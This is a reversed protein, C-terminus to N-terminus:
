AEGPQLKRVREEAKVSLSRALIIGGDGRYFWANKWEQVDASIQTGDLGTRIM